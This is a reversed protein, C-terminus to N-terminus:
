QHRSETTGVHHYACYKKSDSQYKDNSNHESQVLCNVTKRLNWNMQVLNSDNRHAALYGLNGSRVRQSRPLVVVHHFADVATAMDLTHYRWVMAIRVDLYVNDKDM